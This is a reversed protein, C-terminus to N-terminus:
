AEGAPAGNLDVRRQVTSTIRIIEEIDSLAGLVAAVSRARKAARALRTLELIMVRRAVDEESRRIHTIDRYIGPDAPDHVFRVVDLPMDRHIVEIRVRRILTRAEILRYRKGAEDNDWTFHGHLPSAPDAAEALVNEASLRGERELRELVLTVEVDAM